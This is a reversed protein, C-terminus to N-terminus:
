KYQAENLQWYADTNQINQNQKAYDLATMNSIQPSATRNGSLMVDRLQQPNGYFWTVGVINNRDASDKAKADAGAKLLITIIEPNKTWRAAGMLATRGDADRANVDAGSSLLLEICETTVTQSSSCLTMLHTEGDENRVDVKAGAKLLIKLPEPIYAFHLATLGKANRANVDAGANILEEVIEPNARNKLALMLCTTKNQQMENVNSGAAIANKVEQLTVKSGNEKLLNWLSIKVAPKSVTANSSSTKLEALNKPEAPNKPEIIAKRKKEFEQATIRGERKEKRLDKLQEFISKQALISNSCLCLLMGLLVPLFRTQISKM